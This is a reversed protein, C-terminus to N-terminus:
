NSVWRWVRYRSHRFRLLTVRCVMAVMFWGPGPAFVTLNRGSPRRPVPPASPM